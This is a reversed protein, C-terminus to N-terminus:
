ETNESVRAISGDRKILYAGPEDVDYGMARATEAQVIIDPMPAHTIATAFIHMKLMAKIAEFEHENM